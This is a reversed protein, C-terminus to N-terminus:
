MSGAAYWVLLTVTSLFTLQIKAYVHPQSRVCFYAHGDVM